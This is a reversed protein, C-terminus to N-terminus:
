YRSRVARADTATAARLRAGEGANGRTLYFLLPPPFLFYKLIRWFEKHLLGEMQQNFHDDIRWIIAM